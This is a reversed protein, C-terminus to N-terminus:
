AAGGGGPVPADCAREPTRLDRNSEVVWRWNAASLVVWWSALAFLHFPMVEGWRTSGMVFTFISGIALSAQGHGSSFLEGTLTSFLSCGGALCFFMLAGRLSPVFRKLIGAVVVRVTFAYALLYGMSVGMMSTFRWAKARSSESCYCAVLYLIVLLFTFAFGALINEGMLLPCARVWRTRWRVGSILMREPIRDWAHFAMVASAVVLPFGLVTVVEWHGILWTIACLVVGVAALTLRLPASRATNAPSFCFVAVAYLIWGIAVIFGLFGALEKVSPFAGRERSLILMLGLPVLGAMWVLWKVIVHARSGGVAIAWMNAVATLILLVLLGFGLDPLSVGRLFYSVVVFPLSVSLLVLSFTMAAVFKGRVIRNPRLTTIYLMDRREPVCEQTTRHFLVGAAALGSLGLVYLCTRFFEGGVYRPDWGPVTSWQTGVQWMLLLALAVLLQCIVGPLSRSRVGQRAEKVLIPDPEWDRWGRIHETGGSMEDRSRLTGRWM